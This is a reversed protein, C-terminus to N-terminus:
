AGHSNAVVVLLGVLVMILGVVLFAYQAIARTLNQPEAAEASEPNTPDGTALLWSETLNPDRERRKDKKGREPEAAVADHKTEPAVISWGAGAM